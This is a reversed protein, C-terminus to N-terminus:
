MPTGEDESSSNYFDVQYEEVHHQGKITSYRHVRAKMPKGKFHEGGGSQGAGGDTIWQDAGGDTIGDCSQGAGGDTIGDCSQDAGGDTIWQGAGGDTIGDCSQDAGGDTIWQGAGGDTIGDSAREEGDSVQGGGVSAREEGTHEEADSAQRGDGSVGDSGDTKDKDNSSNKDDSLKEDSSYYGNKKLAPMAFLAPTASTPTATSPTTATFTLNAANIVSSTHTTIVELPILGGPVTTTINDLSGASSGKLTDKSHYCSTDKKISDFGRIVRGGTGITSSRVKRHSGGEYSSSRLHPHLVKSKYRGCSLFEKWSERADQNLVCFFLFLFVGQFANSVAFLIQAATRIGPVTITMAGFLWSLGFLFIISGVSALLRLTSMTSLRERRRVMASRTHKLLIGIVVVYEVLNVLLVAFIPGM